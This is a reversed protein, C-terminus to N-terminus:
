GIASLNEVFLKKGPPSDSPSRLPDIGGEAQGLQGAPSGTAARPGQLRFMGRFAEARDGLEGMIAAQVRWDILAGPSNVPATSFYPPVPRGGELCVEEMQGQVAQGIIHPRTIALRNIHTVLDELDGGVLMWAQAQLAAVRIPALSARESPDSSERFVEAVHELMVHPQIDLARIPCGQIPCQQLTPLHSERPPTPGQPTRQGSVGTERLQYDPQPTRQSSVGTERAQHNGQPTRQGSVGTERRQYDSQPTRQSSVGTERAQHKEQPTEYGSVGIKRGTYYNLPTRQGSVGTVKSTYGRQPKGQWSVGTGRRGGGRFSSQASMGAGDRAGSQPARREQAERLARQLRAMEGAQREKQKNRRRKREQTTEKSGQFGRGLPPASHANRDAPIGVPTGRAMPVAAGPTSRSVSCRSRGGSPDRVTGERSGSRARGRSSRSGDRTNRVAGSGWELSTDGAKPSSDRHDGSIAKGPVEAEGGQAKPEGQNPIGREVSPVRNQHRGRPSVEREEKKEEAAWSRKPSGGTSDDDSSM